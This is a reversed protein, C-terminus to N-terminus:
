VILSKTEHMDHIEGDTLILLVHYVKKKQQSYTSQVLKKLQSLLPSFLTPGGLRVMLATKKYQNVVGRIGGPVSANSVSGNLPFCQSVTSVGM